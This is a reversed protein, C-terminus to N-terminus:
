KHNYNDFVKLMKIHYDWRLIEKWLPLKETTDIFEHIDKKHQEIIKIVSQRIKYVVPYSLTLLRPMEKMLLQLDATSIENSLVKELSLLSYEEFLKGTEEDLFNEKLYKSISLCTLFKELDGEFIVDPCSQLFKSMENFYVYRNKNDSFFEKPNDGDFSVFLNATM